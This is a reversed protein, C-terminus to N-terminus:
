VKKYKWRGMSFWGAILIGYIFNTIGLSMFIGNIGTTASLHMALPIRIIILALISVLMPHITDGAGGLARGLSLGLGLFLFSPAVYSILDTGYRVVLPEENFFSVIGEAFFLFLITIFILIISALGACM